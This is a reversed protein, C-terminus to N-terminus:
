PKHRRPTTLLKAVTMRDYDRGVHERLYNSAAYRTGIKLLVLPQGRNHGYVAFRQITYPKM